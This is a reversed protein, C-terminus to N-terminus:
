QPRRQLLVVWGMATITRVQAREAAEARAQRVFSEGFLSDYVTAAPGSAAAPPPPPADPPAAGRPVPTAAHGAAAGGGAGSRATGPPSKAAAATAAAIAEARQAAAKPHRLRFLTDPLNAPLLDDDTIPVGARAAIARIIDPTAAALERATSTAPTHHNTAAAALRDAEVTLARARDARDVRDLFLREHAPLVHHIAAARKSIAPAFTVTALERESRERKLRAKEGAARADWDSIRQQLTPGGAARRGGAAGAPHFTVGEMEKEAKAARAAALVADRRAAAAKGREIVGAIGPYEVHRRPALGSAAVAETGTARVRNVWAQTADEWRPATGAYREALRSARAAEAAAATAGLDDPVQV